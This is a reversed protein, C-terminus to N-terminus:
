LGEKECVGSCGLLGEKDDVAPGDRSGKAVKLGSLFGVLIGVVVLFGTKEDVKEAWNSFSYSSGSYM